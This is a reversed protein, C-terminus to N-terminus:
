APGDHLRVSQRDGRWAGGEGAQGRGLDSSLELAAAGAPHAVRLGGSGRSFTNVAVKRHLRFGEGLREAALNEPAEVWKQDAQKEDGTEARGLREPAAIGDGRDGGRKRYRLEGARHERRAGDADCPPLVM